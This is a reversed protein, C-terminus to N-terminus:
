RRSLSEIEDALGEARVAIQRPIAADQRCARALRRALSGMRRVRESRPAPEPEPEPGFREALRRSLAAPTTPGELVEDRLERWGAATLRGAEEARSLVEIVEFPPARGEGRAERALEPEHRELFGYSATLKDATAKRIFLEAACYREFSAYGWERWTERRRVQSLLRGLEVWASKFRRAGELVARRFSGEPLGEARAAIKEATTTM